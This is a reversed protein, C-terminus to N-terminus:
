FHRTRRNGRPVPSRHVGVVVAGVGQPSLCQQIVEILYNTGTERSGIWGDKVLTSFMTNNLHRPISEENIRIGGRPGVADKSQLADEFHERTLYMGPILASSNMAFPTTRCLKVMCPTAILRPDSSQDMKQCAEDVDRMRELEKHMNHDLRYTWSSGEERMRKYQVMVLSHSPENYYLLDVGTAEEIRTRNANYVFLQHHSPSDDGRTYVRWGVKDADTGDMGPFHSYDHIIQQDEIVHTSPLGALFPVSPASAGSAPRWGEIVDRDIGAFDLLTGVADKEFGLKEGILGQPAEADLNQEIEALHGAIEPRLLKLSEILAQGAKPSM